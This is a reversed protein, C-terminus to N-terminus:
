KDEFILFPKLVAIANKKDIWGYYRSDWSHSHYHSIFFLKNGQIKEVPKMLPILNLPCQSFIETPVYGKEKGIKAIEEPLCFQVLDGIQIKEINKHIVKYIGLPLSPTVNIRLNFIPFLMLIFLCLISITILINLIYKILILSPRHKNKNLLM